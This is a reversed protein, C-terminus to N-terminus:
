NENQLEMFASETLQKGDVWWEKHDMTFYDVAPGDIRHRQGHFYWSQNGSAHVMAPGDTRHLKGEFWWEQRGNLCEVAPGDTRHRMGHLYWIKDGNKYELAPGNDRHLQGDYHWSTFTKHVRKTLKPDFDRIRYEKFDACKDVLIFKRSFLGWM